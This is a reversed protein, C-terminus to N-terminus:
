FTYSASFALLDGEPRKRNEFEHVWRGNFDLHHKAVETSYTIM